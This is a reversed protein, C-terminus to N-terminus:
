VRRELENAYIKGISDKNELIYESLKTKGLANDSVYLLNDMLGKIEERTITVDGKLSSIIKGALYGLFPPVSIIPKSISLIEMITQVLQKYTYTEVGIANITHNVASQAEDILVQAFDDIHIPQLKYGGDGFVGFVPLHRVMWAINNILIDGRGFLVAPRVISYSLGSTVLYEELEGKGRFYELNSNKDPNTISVHVFRKIGAERATDILIKTNKVADQHNFSKHNFRVWYTNVLTDYSEMSKILEDPRDFNFSAIELNKGFPNPKHLSNTLTKVSFGREILKESIVKGSYGLAGTVIIKKM